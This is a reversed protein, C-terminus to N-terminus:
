AAQMRAYERLFEAYWCEAAVLGGGPREEDIVLYEDGAGVNGGHGIGVDFLVPMGFETGFITWPGGGATYPHLDLGIGFRESTRRVAELLESSPDAALPAHAALVEVAVDGRGTATLHRRIADVVPQVEYGRPLRVDLLAWAEGPLSFVPGGPGTYGAALGHLNFSPEYFYREYAEDDSLEASSAGVDGGVGGLVDQWRRGRNAAVLARVEAREDDSPPVLQDYFGPVAVRRGDDDVLSALAAVLRWSPSDVLVQSMGHANRGAPGRGWEAGSARLRVVLLGKYGLRVTMVGGAEAAGPSFCASARTIRERYREVMAAYHPSGLNEEGEALFLVNVPLTGDVAILAELANLWSVYPGKRSRAGVGLLVEGHPAVRTRRAEFPPVSWRGAPSKTDLMCYSVITVPAGADYFGFVGPEGATPVLEVEQCGLERLTAAFLDLTEGVGRGESPLTPQRLFASIREVHRERHAELYARLGDTKVAV